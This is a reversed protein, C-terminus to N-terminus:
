PESLADLLDRLEAEIQEPSSVTQAIEAHILERYRRRLRHAMMKVANDTTGWRQALEAYGPSTPQGWLTDGLAEFVAIKGNSRCEAELRALVRELLTAAWQKEFLRDPTPVSTPEALYRREAESQDWSVFDYGAGRRQTHQRRWDSTLFRNLATLLFSRFRGRDPDPRSLDQRRLLTAFFEQTLDQADEVRYGRRRVYAYIPYWYTQCLTELAQRATTEPGRGAALVVSWHTTAFRGVPDTSPATRM